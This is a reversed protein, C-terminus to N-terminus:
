APWADLFQQWHAGSLAKLMSRVLECEQDHRVKDFFGRMLQFRLYVLYTNVVDTECYAR